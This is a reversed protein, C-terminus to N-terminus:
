GSPSALKSWYIGNDGEIGKWTMHTFGQFNCICPGESTGVGAVAIQGTFQNGDYLSFWINSDDETGKWALM